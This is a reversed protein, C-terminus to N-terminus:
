RRSTPATPLATVAKRLPRWWSPRQSAEVAAFGCDRMREEYGGITKVLDDDGATLAECLNSADLLAMKAGSGRASSMAQIADGLLTV